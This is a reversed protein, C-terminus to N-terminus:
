GPIGYSAVLPRNLAYVLTATKHLFQVFLNTCSINNLEPWFIINIVIQYQMGRMHNIGPFADPPVMAAGISKMLVGPFPFDLGNPFRVIFRHYYYM